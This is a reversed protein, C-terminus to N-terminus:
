TKFFKSKLWYWTRYLIGKQTDDKWIGTKKKVAKVEAKILRETLQNYAKVHSLSPVHSAM